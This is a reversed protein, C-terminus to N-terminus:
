WDCTDRGHGTGGGLRGWSMRHTALDATDWVSVASLACTSPKSRM